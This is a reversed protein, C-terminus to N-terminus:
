SLLIKKKEKRKKSTKSAPKTAPANAALTAFRAAAALFDTYVSHSITDVCYKHLNLRICTSHVKM